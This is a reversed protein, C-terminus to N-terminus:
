VLTRVIIYGAGGQGGAGGVAGTGNAGGGGGGGCGWGGDGGRGGVANTGSAGAGGTGGTNITGVMPNALFSHGRNGNLGGGTGPSPVNGLFNSNTIQGPTSSVTSNAADVGTGGTGGSTVNDHSIVATSAANQTGASGAVPALGTRMFRVAASGTGDAGASGVAGGSAGTSGIRGNGAAPVIIATSTSSMPPYPVWTTPLTNNAGSPPIVVYMVNPIAFSPAVFTVNSGAGGGGGGRAAVGLASAQGAGGRGGPAQLTVIHLKSGEPKRWMSFRWGSVNTAESGVAGIYVANLEDEAPLKQM